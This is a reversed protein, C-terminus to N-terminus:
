LLAGAQVGLRWALLAGVVVSAVAASAGLAGEARAFRAGLLALPAGLLASMAAMGGISGAGFVAVYALAVVPSPITAVVALMLAASGALGHVLGVLFPRRVRHQHSAGSAHLHPHVHRGPGHTHAHHHLSGGRVLTWLVNVGLGILMAAVGLELALGLRPPIEAHLAVVAVAVALLSATHGLGWLAGILSSSWVSRRASVITSVAALHDVDLAHRIGLLFGLGLVAAPTTPIM